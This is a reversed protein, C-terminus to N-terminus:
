VLSWFLLSLITRHDSFIEFGDFFEEAVSLGKSAGEGFVSGWAGVFGQDFDELFEFWALRDGFFADLIEQNLFEEIWLSIVKTASATEFVGM